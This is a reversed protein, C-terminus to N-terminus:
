MQGNQRIPWPSASQIRSRNPASIV